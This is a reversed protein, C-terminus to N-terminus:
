QISGMIKDWEDLPIVGTVKQGNIFFTPTGSIGYKMGDAYDRSIKIRTANNADKLCSHYKDMDLGIQNGLGDIQDQTLSAGLSGQNQFLLDHMIWFRGQDNACSAIESLVTSGPHTEEVPFNRVIFKIRNNYKQVVKQMIPAALQCNPCKFDVFEVVVISANPNGLYPSDTRELESREDALAKSNSQTQGAEFEQFLQQGEGNKIKWIYTGVLSLFIILLIVLLSVITLILIGWWRKYWRTKQTLGNKGSNNLNNTNM